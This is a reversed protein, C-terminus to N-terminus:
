GWRGGARSTKSDHCRKCLAQLNYRANTGGQRLPVIHDVTMSPAGCKRCYPEQRLVELRIHEWASGYGRQAANPRIDRTHVPCRATRVIAPCGPELCASALKRM